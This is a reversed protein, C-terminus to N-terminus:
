IVQIRSLFFPLLTHQWKTSKKYSQWYSEIWTHKKQVSETDGIKGDRWQLTYWIVPDYLLSTNNNLTGYVCVCVCVFQFRCVCLNSYINEMYLYSIITVLFYFWTLHLFVVITHHHHHRCYSFCFLLSCPMANPFSKLLNMRHSLIFMCVCVCVCKVSQTSINRRISSFSFLCTATSLHYFLLCCCRDFQICTNLSLSFFSSYFLCQAIAIIKMPFSLACVSLSYVSLLIIRM